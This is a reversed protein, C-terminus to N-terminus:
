FGWVQSNIFVLFCSFGRIVVLLGFVLLGAFWWFGGSVVLFQGFDVGVSSVYFAYALIGVCFDLFSPM